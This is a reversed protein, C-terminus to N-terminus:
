KNAEQFKPAPREAMEGAKVFKPDALILKHIIKGDKKTLYGKAVLKTQEMKGDM